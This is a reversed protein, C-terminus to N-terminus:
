AINTLRSSYVLVFCITSKNGMVVFHIESCSYLNTNVMHVDEDKFWTQYHYMISTVASYPLSLVQDQSHCLCLACM